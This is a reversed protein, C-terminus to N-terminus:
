FEGISYFKCLFLLCVSLVETEPCVPPIRKFHQVLVISSQIFSVIVSLHIGCCLEIGKRLM